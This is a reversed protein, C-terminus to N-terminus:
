LTAERHKVTKLNNQKNPVKQRVTLNHFLSMIHYVSQAICRLTCAGNQLSVM